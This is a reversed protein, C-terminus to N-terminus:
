QRGALEWDFPEYTVACAELRPGCAKDLDARTDCGPREACSEPLFAWVFQLLNTRGEPLAARIDAEHTRFLPSLHVGDRALKVNRGSQVFRGVADNLQADLTDAQYPTGDLLACGRAGCALAFPVRSDGTESLFRREVAWLTFRRGGIAWSRLWFFCRGLADLRAGTDRDLGAQLALAHYANLWFALRDEPSEFLDPRNIPSVRALQEVFGDLGGRDNRLAAYDILGSPGVHKLASALPRYDLPGDDIPVPAPLHGDVYLLGLALCCSLILFGAAIRKM